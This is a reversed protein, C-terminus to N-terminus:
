NSTQTHGTMPNTPGQVPATVSQDVHRGGMGNEQQAERTQPPLGPVVASRPAEYGPSGSPAAMSTTTDNAISPNGGGGLAFVAGGSLALVAATAIITKM